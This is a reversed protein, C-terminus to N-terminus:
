SVSSLRQVATLQRQSETTVLNWVSQYNRMIEIMRTMAKVSEINSNELMGQALTTGAAPQPTEDSSYLGNGLPKLFQEKEFSVLNLRAIQGFETSVTGDAAITIRTAEAPIQIPGNNTSMVPKGDATSISGNPTLLLHGARTYHQKDGDQVVLYGGGLVAIDLSNDTRTLAGQRTDRVTGYDSVFSVPDQRQARHIHELFLSNEGKFGPTNVNAVNNAVVDIERNLAVLRSLGVYVPNEM